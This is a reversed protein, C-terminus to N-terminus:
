HFRHHHHRRHLKFGWHRRHHRHGWRWHHHHRRWHRHRHRIELVQGETFGRDLSSAKTLLGSGVNASAPSLSFVFGAFLLCVVSLKRM